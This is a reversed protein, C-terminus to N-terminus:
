KTKKAKKAKGGGSTVKGAKRGGSDGLTWARGELVAWRSSVAPGTRGPLGAAITEASQGAAKGRLIVEDEKKSYKLAEWKQLNLCRAKTKLSRESRDMEIAMESYKPRPVTRLMAIFRQEEAATWQAGSKAASGQQAAPAKPAEEDSSVDSSSCCDDSSFSLGALDASRKSPQPRTPPVSPRSPRSLANLSTTVLVSPTSSSTTTLSSTSPLCKRSQQLPPPPPPCVRKALTMPTSSAATLRTSSPSTRSPPASAAASPAVLSSSTPRPNLPVSRPSSPSSIARKPASASVSLSPACAHHSLSTAVPKGRGRQQKPKPPFRDHRLSRKKRVEEKDDESAEGRAKAEAKAREKADKRHQMENFVEGVTEQEVFHQKLQDSILYNLQPLVDRLSTAPPYSSLASVIPNGGLGGRSTTCTGGSETHAKRAHVAEALMVDERSLDTGPPILMGTGVISLFILVNDKEEPHEQLFAGVLKLVFQNLSKTQARQGVFHSLVRWYPEDVDLHNFASSYGSYRLVSIFLVLEWLPGHQRDLNVQLWRSFYVDVHSSKAQNLWRPQVAFELLKDGTRSGRVVINLKYTIHSMAKVGKFLLSNCHSLPPLTTEPSDSLLWNRNLSAALPLLDVPSHSQLVFNPNGQQRDRNFALTIAELAEACAEPTATSLMSQPGPDELRVLVEVGKTRIVGCLGVAPVRCIEKSARWLGDQINPSPRPVKPQASKSAKQAKPPKLILPSPNRTPAGKLLPLASQLLSAQASHAHVASASFPPSPLRYSASPPRSTSPAPLVASSLATSITPAATSLNLAFSTGETGSAVSAGPTTGKGSHASVVLKSSAASDRAIGFTKSSTQPPILSPVGKSSPVALRPQQHCDPRQSSVLAGALADVPSGAAQPPTPSFHSSPRPRSGRLTSGPGAPDPVQHQTQTGRSTSQAASVPASTQEPRISSSSTPTIVALATAPNFAAWPNPAM